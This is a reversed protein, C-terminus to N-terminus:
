TLYARDIVQSVPLTSSAEPASVNRIYLPVYGAKFVGIDITHAVSYLYGWSTGSHEQDDDLVNTTGAEYIVIDSGTVFGSITLIYDPLIITTTANTGNIVSPEDGGVVTLNIHGGSNNYFASNADEDNASYGILENDWNFDGAASAEMAHNSGDSTFVCGTVLSPNSAKLSVAGSANEFACGTFVAGGQTVLGCQRYVTNLITSNSLYTFAGMLTFVCGDKNVYANDTVIFRGPSTTGLASIIINTWDVRSSANRVEFTNFDATVRITDQIAINRNADRFDVATGSTGMLFLGKMLYGGDIAQFLGWRNYGATGDNADNKAAAGAFTGYNATEGSVVQLTRGYRFVDVGFPSGKSITALTKAVAGFFQWTGSPSGQTAQYGVSPDVAINVWGGYVYTNSGKVYWARYNSSDQGMIIRLGGNAETDLTNPCGFFLWMFLAAPTTITVSTAAQNGAGGLGGGAIAMSKSFCAAKQIFYDTEAAPVGGGTAGAPEVWTEGSEAERIDVLDTTYAPATM